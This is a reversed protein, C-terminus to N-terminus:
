QQLTPHVSDHCCTNHSFRFHLLVEHCARLSAGLISGQWNPGYWEHLAGHLAQLRVDHHHELKVQTDLCMCSALRFSRRFSGRGQLIKILYLKLLLCLRASAAFDSLLAACYCAHFCNTLPCHATLLASRGPCACCPVFESLIAVCVCARRSSAFTRSASRCVLRQM